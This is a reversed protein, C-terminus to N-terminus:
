AAKVSGWISDPEFKAYKEIGLAKSVNEYLKQYSPGM